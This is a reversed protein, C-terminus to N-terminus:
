ETATATTPVAEQVRRQLEEATISLIGGEPTAGVSSRPISVTQGSTLRLIIHDQEVAEITGAVTGATGRVVVGPAIQVPQSATQPPPSPTLREVAANLQARTMSLVVRGRNVWLANRPIRAEHRDTRVIVDAGQISVISGVPNGADDVINTGVAIGAASQRPAPESLAAVSPTASLCFAAAFASWLLKM